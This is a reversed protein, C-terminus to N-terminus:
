GRFTVILMGTLDLIPTGEGGGGPTGVVKSKYKQWYMSCVKSLSTMALVLIRVIESRNGLADSSENLVM